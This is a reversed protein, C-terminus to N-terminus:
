FTTCKWFTFDKNLVEGPNITITNEEAYIYVGEPMVVYNGIPLEASLKGRRVCVHISKNKLQDLDGNGLSDVDAKLIFFLDGKYNDYKRSEYDIVPMCDGEGYEVTGRVGTEFNDKTCGVIAFLIMSLLIPIYKMRFQIYNLYATINTM